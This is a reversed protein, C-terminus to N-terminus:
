PIISSCTNALFGPWAPRAGRGRPLIRHARCLCFDFLRPLYYFVGALELLRPTVPADGHDNEPGKDEEERGRYQDHNDGQRVAGEQTGRCARLLEGLVSRM